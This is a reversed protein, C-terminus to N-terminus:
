RSIEELKIKAPEINRGWLLLVPLALTPYRCKRKHEIVNQSTNNPEAIQGNGGRYM